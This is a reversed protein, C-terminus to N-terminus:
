EHSSNMLGFASYESGFTKRATAIMQWISGEGDPFVDLGSLALIGGPALLDPATRITSDIADPSLHGVDAIIMAGFGPQLRKEATRKRVLEAAGQAIGSETTILQKETLKFLTRGIVSSAKANFPRSSLLATNAYLG